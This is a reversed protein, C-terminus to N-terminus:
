RIPGVDEGSPVSVVQTVTMAPGDPVQAVQVLALTQHQSILLDFCSVSPLVALRELRTGIGPPLGV